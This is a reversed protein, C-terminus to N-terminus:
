NRCLLSVERGFISVQAVAGQNARQRGSASSERVVRFEKGRWESSENVDLHQARALIRFDIFIIEHSMDLVSDLAITRFAGIGQIFWHADPIERDCLPTCDGTFIPKAVYRYFQVSYGILVFDDEGHGDAVVFLHREPSPL